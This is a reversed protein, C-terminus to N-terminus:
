VRQHKVDNKEIVRLCLDRTGVGCTQLSKEEPEDLLNLLSDIKKQRCRADQLSNIKRRTKGIAKMVDSLKSPSEPTSGQLDISEQSVDPLLPDPAHPQAEKITEAAISSSLHGISESSVSPSSQQYSSVPLTPIADKVLIRNGKPTFYFDDHKFHASCVCHHPKPIFSEDMQLAQLWVYLRRHDPPFRCYFFCTMYLWQCM